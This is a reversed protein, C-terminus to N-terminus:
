FKEGVYGFNSLEVKEGLKNVSDKAIDQWNNGNVTDVFIKIDPLQKIIEKTLSEAMAILGLTSIGPWFYDFVEHIKHFGEEELLFGTAAGVVALTDFQKM